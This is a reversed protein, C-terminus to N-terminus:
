SKLLTRFTKSLTVLSIMDSKTTENDESKTTENDQIHFMPMARIRLDSRSNLKSSSGSMCLSPRNKVPDATQTRNSTALRVAEVMIFSRILRQGKNGTICSSTMCVSSQNKGHVRCQLWDIGIFCGRYGELAVKM